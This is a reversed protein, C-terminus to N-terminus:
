WSIFKIISFQNEKEIKLLYPGPTVDIKLSNYANNNTLMKGNLDYVTATFSGQLDITTIGSGSYQLRPKVPLDIGTNFFSSDVQLTDYYTNSDGNWYISSRVVYKGAETFHYNVESQTSLLDTPSGSGVLKPRYWKYICVTFFSSTPKMSFNWNGNGLNVFERSAKVIPNVTIFYQAYVTDKKDTAFAWFSYPLTSADDDSTTWCFTGSAHKVSGNYTSWQGYPISKDWNIFVSDGADADNTNITICIMQGSHATCSFPGSLMPKANQAVLYIHFGLFCSFFVLYKM